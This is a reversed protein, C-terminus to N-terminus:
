APQHIQPFQKHWHFRLALKDRWTARHLHPDDVPLRKHKGGNTVVELSREDPVRVVTWPKRVIYSYGEGHDHAYVQEARRGPRVNRKPMAYVVHDGPKWTWHRRAAKALKVTLLLGAPIAMWWGNAPPNNLFGPLTLGTVTVMLYYAWYGIWIALLTILTTDM